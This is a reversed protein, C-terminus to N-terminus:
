SESPDNAPTAESQVQSLGGNIPPVGTYVVQLPEGGTTHDIGQTPKGHIRDRVDQWFKYDGNMAKDLGVQEMYTEIEDPTMGKAKAINQLAERYITAYNRQGKPRGNPNGSEGKKFPPKLNKDQVRPTKKATKTSM